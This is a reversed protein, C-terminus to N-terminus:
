PRDGQRTFTKRESNPGEVEIEDATIRLVKYGPAIEDGVAVPTTQGNRTILATITGGSRVSGVYVLDLVFAPAEAGSPGKRKPAPAAAPGSPPAIPGRSAQPHFIDRRPAPVEGAAFVMLDKRVLPAAPKAAPTKEKPAPREASALPLLLGLALVLSLRRETKM